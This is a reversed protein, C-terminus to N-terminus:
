EPAENTDEALEEEEPRQGRYSALAVLALDRALMWKPGHVLAVIQAWDSQLAPLSGARSWLDAFAQRVQDQTKASSFTLRIRQREDQFRKKLNGGLSRHDHFIKGFQNRIAEHTATVLRREAEPLQETMRILGERESHQLAGLNGKESAWYTHLHRTRKRDLVTHTSFDAYWPRGRVLNDCAFARLHSPRIWTTGQQTAVLRPPLHSRILRFIRVAEEPLHCVEVLAARYKQKKDWPMAKLYTGRVSAVCPRAVSELLLAFETLLVADGLSAPATDSAQDPSLSSRRSAFELLDSPEPIVLFGGGGVESPLCACGVLSFLTALAEDANYDARTSGHAVHRQAAGPCAWGALEVTERKRIAALVDPLAGM